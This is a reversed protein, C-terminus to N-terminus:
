GGSRQLGQNAIVNQTNDNDESMSSALLRMEMSSAQPQSAVSANWSFTLEWRWFNFVLCIREPLNKGEEEEGEEEDGEKENEKKLCPRMYDHSAEFKSHPHLYGPIDPGALEM